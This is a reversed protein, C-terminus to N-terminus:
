RVETIERLAVTRLRQDSDWVQLLAQKDRRSPRLIKRISRVKIEEDFGVGMVERKLVLVSGPFVVDEIM